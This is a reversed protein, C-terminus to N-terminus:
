RDGNRAAREAEAQMYLLCLVHWRIYRFGCLKGVAEPIVKELDQALVGYDIRGTAKWRFIVHRISRVRDLAPPAPRIDTKLRADSLVRSFAGAAQSVGRFVSMLLQFGERAVIFVFPAALLLMIFRVVQLNGQWWPFNLTAANAMAGLWGTATSAAQWFSSVIGEGEGEGMTPDTIDVSVPAAFANLMQRTPDDDAPTGSLVMFAGFMAMLGWSLAFFAAIKFTM